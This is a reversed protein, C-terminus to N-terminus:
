AEVPQAGIAALDLGRTQDTLAGCLRVCSPCYALWFWGDDDTRGFWVTSADVQQAGGCTECDFRVTNVTM